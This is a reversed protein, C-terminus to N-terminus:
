LFTVIETFLSTMYSTQLASNILKVCTNANNGNYGQLSSIFCKRM